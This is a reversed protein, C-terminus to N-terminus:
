LWSLINPIVDDGQEKEEDDAISVVLVEGDEFFRLFRQDKLNAETAVYLGDYRLFNGLTAAEIRRALLSSFVMYQAASVRDLDNDLSHAKPNRVGLYAGQLLQIFGKQDNKGSDTDLESIILRPEALSFARGVLESGDLRLATKERIMDFVAIVGDLVASRFHGDRFQPYAHNLIVPHLIAELDFLNGDVESMSYNAKLPQRITYKAIKVQKTANSAM